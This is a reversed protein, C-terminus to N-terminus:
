YVTLEDRIKKALKAIRELRAACPPSLPSADPKDLEERLQQALAALEASDSKSKELNAHLMAKRQKEKAWAPIDAGPIRNDDGFPAPKEGSEQADLVDRAPQFQVELPPHSRAVGTLSTLLLLTFFRANGSM